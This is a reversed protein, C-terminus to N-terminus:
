FLAFTPIVQPPAYHLTCANNPPEPDVSPERWTFDAPQLLRQPARVCRASMLAHANHTLTHTAPRPTPSWRRLARSLASDPETLTPRCSPAELWRGAALWRAADNVVRLHFFFFFHNEEQSCRSQPRTWTGSTCKFKLLKWLKDSEPNPKWFFYIQLM